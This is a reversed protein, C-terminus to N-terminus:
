GKVAGATFSKQIEGSMLAYIIITPLTAVLLGAGLAGWNTAYRGVMSMIGVTLTKFQEKSIFTIAFMLENWSSLYTFISVTAIAPRILPLMIHFFIRYINCGDLCAAEEMEKPLTNFFGVFIYIAMPIAIGVYPLVLAWYTNYLNVGKLFVFLPLLMAHLPIMLGMLFLTLIKGSHKWKMRAIAFSAMASIFSSIAITAATVIVSNIFYIGIKGNKFVDMYNQIRWVQPLGIPNVSFIEQNNKFSFTILWYLPFLQIVAILCLIVFEAAKKFNYSKM